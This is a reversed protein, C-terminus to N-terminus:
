LSMLALPLSGSIQGLHPAREAAEHACFPQQGFRKQLVTYICQGFNYVCCKNKGGNEM